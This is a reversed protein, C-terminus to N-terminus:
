IVFKQTFILTFYMIKSLLILSSFDQKLIVLEKLQWQFALFFCLFILFKTFNNKEFNSFIILVKLGTCM